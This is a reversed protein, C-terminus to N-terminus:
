QNDYKVEIRQAFTLPGANLTPLIDSTHSTPLSRQAM